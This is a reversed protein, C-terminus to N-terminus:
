QLCTIGACGCWDTRYPVTPSFGTPGGSFRARTLLSCSSSPRPRTPRPNLRSAFSVSRGSHNLSSDPWTAPSRAKTVAIRRRRMAHMAHMAVAKLLAHLAVRCIELNGTKWTGLRVSAMRGREHPPRRHAHPMRPFRSHQIGSFRGVQADGPQGERVGEPGVPRGVVARRAVRTTEHELDRNPGDHDDIRRLSV